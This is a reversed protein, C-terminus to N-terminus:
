QRGGNRHGGGLFKGVILRDHVRELYRWGCRQPKVSRWTRETTAEIDKTSKGSWAMSPRYGHCGLAAELGYAVAM